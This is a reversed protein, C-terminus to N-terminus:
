TNVIDQIGTGYCADNSQRLLADAVSAAESEEASLSISYSTDKFHISYVNSSISSYVSIEKTHKILAPLLVISM